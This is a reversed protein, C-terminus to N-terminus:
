RARPAQRARKREYMSADADSLLADVDATEIPARSVGVSVGVGTTMPGIMIPETLAATIRSVLGAVSAAPESESLLVTFEDGGYRALVDGARVAGDLRTAIEQLVRDGLEHGYEDNVAKFGDLDCFLLVADGADGTADQRRRAIAEDVAGVFAWRNLLGTLQDHTAAHALRENREQLTHQMDILEGIDHASVIVGNVVPDSLQNTGHIDTRLRRHQPGVLQVRLRSNAGDGAQVLREFWADAEDIDAPDVITTWPSGIVRDSDHGLLATLRRNAYVFAGDGDLLLVIDTTRDVMSRLRAPSDALASQHTLDRCTFVMGNIVPDDLRSMGIVECARWTGDRNRARGQVILGSEGPNESRKEFSSLMYLVDDPHVYDFINTGLVEDVTYGMLKCATANLWRVRAADDLVFVMEPLNDLLELRAPDRLPEVQDAPAMGSTHGTM